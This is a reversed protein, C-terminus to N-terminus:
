QRKYSDPVEIKGAIIDAKIAEARQRVSDTLIKSNFEDLAYDIGKNALGFHKAGGAFKGSKDPEWNRAQGQRSQRKASCTLQWHTDTHWRRARHYSHAIIRPTFRSWDREPWIVSQAM